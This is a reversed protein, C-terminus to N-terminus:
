FSWSIGAGLYIDTQHHLLGFGAGINLSFNLRRCKGADAHVFETKSIEAKRYGADIIFRSGPHLPAPSLFKLRLTLLSDNYATDAEALYFNENLGASSSDNETFSSKKGDKKTVCYVRVKLTDHIRYPIYCTDTRATFTHISPSNRVCRLIYIVAAASILILVSYTLVMKM